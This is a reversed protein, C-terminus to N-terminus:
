QKGPNDKNSTPDQQESHLREESHLNKAYYEEADLEEYPYDEGPEDEYDPLDRHGKINLPKTPKPGGSNRKPGWTKEKRWTKGM